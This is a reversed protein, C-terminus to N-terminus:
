LPFLRQYAPRLARRLLVADDQRPNWLTEAFLAVSPQVREELMGDEVLGYVALAPNTKLMERYFWAASPYHELWHANIRDWENQRLLLRERTRQGSQEGLLFPGHNEFDDKWRICTWGKAVIGFAQGPRLAALERSYGLSVEPTDTVPVEQGPYYSYPIQAACDEWVVEIRRDLESLDGYHERISTAHLGLQIPVDGFEAWLAAATENMLRAAWTATSRGALMLEGHETLTQFYIGDHALGAYQARYTELAAVRIRRRDGASSLDLSGKHGWGLHFGLIVRIGRGHAEDLIDAINLPVHDNWLTLTNLKLRMMQDLYRRHNTIPYGWTWLGRHPIAPAERIAFPEAEDLRCRLGAGAPGDLLTGGNFLHLSAELAGYLVGREDAGAVVLQRLDPREPVARMLLCYGEPGCPAEMRGSAILEGIGPNSTPTGILAEHGVPGNDEGGERIEVVYPSYYQIMRQLEIVAKREVGEFSGFRIKWRPGAHVKKFESIM